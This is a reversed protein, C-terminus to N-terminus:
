TQFKFKLRNQTPKIDLTFYSYLKINNYISIQKEM